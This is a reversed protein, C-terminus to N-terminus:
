RLMVGWDASMPGDESDQMHVRVGDQAEASYPFAIYDNLTLGSKIETSYGYNSRGTKVYQKVLRNNIGAKMVYTGRDDERLYPAQLFFTGGEGSSLGSLTIEVDQGSILQSDDEVTATFQYLSSNPNGTGYYFLGSNEDLPYASIEVLSGQYQSGTMYDMVTVPDGIQLVGLINESVAGVVYTSSHGGSVVLFPKNQALAEEPELLSTVTGDVTSLVTSNKLVLSARDLDLKAQRRAIQLARIEERKEAILETLEAASYGMADYNDPEPSPSATPRPTPTPARTTTPVPTPAPTPTPTPEGPEDFTEAVTEVTTVATLDGPFIVGSLKNGDLEFSAILRGFNSDGDRVEFVASFPTRMWTSPAPEQAGGEADPDTEPDPTPGYGLMWRLFEPTVLCGEKCLFVYPDDSLGSGEYPKATLDLKTHLTATSAPVPTPSATPRPTPTVTPRPTATVRPTPYVIPRTTAAPGPTALPKTNQLKRLQKQATEIDLDAQSLAVTRFEVDLELSERDYQLLPDGIHVEQGQKVFIQSVTQGPNPLIQQTYNNVVRGYSSVQDEMVYDALQSVPIVEVTRQDNQYQLFLFGGLVLGGLLLLVVALIIFKKRRNNENM